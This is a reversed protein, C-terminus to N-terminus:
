SDGAGPPAPASTDHTLGKTIAVLAGHRGTQQRARYSFYRDTHDHTCMGLSVIADRRLGADILDALVAAGLDLRGDVATITGFTNRFQSILTADVNYCCSGIHPGVYGLLESPPVGSITTVERALAGAVRGLAGRWGAHAVGVTRVSGTAVLIVPVCDAFLMLLPLDTETTVLGDTAPVPPSGSGAHAGRGADTQVMRLVRNGHVQEATVLRDALDPLGVADLLLRRNLDISAPDDGVHAALNLTDFPPTSVGGTRGSLAVLIGTRALLREDLSLSVGGVIRNSLEPASQGMM